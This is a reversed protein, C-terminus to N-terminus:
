VSLMLCSRKGYKLTRKKHNRKLIMRSINNNDCIRYEKIIESIRFYWNNKHLSVNLETLAESVLPPVSIHLRIYYKIVRYYLRLWQPYTGTEGYVTATTANPPLGLMEKCYKLLIRDITPYVRTGWVESGYEIIAYTTGNLFITCM